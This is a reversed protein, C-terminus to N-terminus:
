APGPERGMGEERREAPRVRVRGNEGVEAQLGIEGLVPNQAAGVPTLEAILAQNEPNNALLNRLALIAYERLDPPISPTLHRTLLKRSYPLSLDSSKNDSVHTPTM